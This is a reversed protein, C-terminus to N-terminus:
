EINAETKSPDKIRFICTYEEGMYECYVRGYLVGEASVTDRVGVVKVGDGMVEISIYDPESVHWTLGKVPTNTTTDLLQLITAWGVNATIDTVNLMFQPKETPETPKMEPETPDEPVGTSINMPQVLEADMIYADSDTIEQMASASYHSSTGWHPIITVLKEESLSLKFVLENEYNGNNTGAKYLQRSHYVMEGIKVVAFGTSANGSRALTITYEGAGLMKIYRQDSKSLEESLSGQTITVKLDFNAAQLINQTSTVSSSFYAFASTGMGALCLVILSIHLTLRFLLVKDTVKGYKPVYFLSKILKKM